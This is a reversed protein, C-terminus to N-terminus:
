LPSHPKSLSGAQGGAAYSHGQHRPPLGGAEQSAPGQPGGRHAPQRRVKGRGPVRAWICPCSLPAGPSPVLCCRPQDSLHASFSAASELFKRPSKKTAQHWPARGGDEQETSDPSPPPSLWPVLVMVRVGLVKYLGPNRICM